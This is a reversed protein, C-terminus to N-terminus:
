ACVADLLAVCVANVAVALLSGDAHLEQVVVRILTRPHLHVLVMGEVIQRLISEM